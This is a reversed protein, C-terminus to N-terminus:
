MAVSLLDGLLMVVLEEFGALSTQQGLPNLVLLLFLAIGEIDFFHNESWFDHQVSTM